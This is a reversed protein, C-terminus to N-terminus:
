RSIVVDFDLAQAADCPPYVESVDLARASALSLIRVLLENETFVFSDM